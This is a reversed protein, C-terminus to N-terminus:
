KTKWTKNFIYEYKYRNYVNKVTINVNINSNMYNEQINLICDVAYNFHNSLIKQLRGKKTNEIL